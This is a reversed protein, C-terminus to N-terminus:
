GGGPARGAWQAHGAAILEDLKKQSLKHDKGMSCLHAQPDLLDNFARVLGAIAVDDGDYRGAIQCMWDLVQASSDCSELEVWYHRLPDDCDCELVRGGESLRWPGWRRADGM